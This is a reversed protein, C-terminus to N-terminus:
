SGKLNYNFNLGLNLFTDDSNVKKGLQLEVFRSAFCKHTKPCDEEYNHNM